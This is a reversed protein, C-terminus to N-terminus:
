IGFRKSNHEIMIIDEINFFYSERRKDFAKNKLRDLKHQFPHYQNQSLDVKQYM